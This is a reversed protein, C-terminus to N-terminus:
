GPPELIMRKNQYDFYVVYKELVRGGISGARGKEDLATASDGFLTVDANPLEIGMLFVGALRGNVRQAVGGVGAVGAPRVVNGVRNRVAHADIFPKSLTVGLNSGADVLFSGRLSDGDILKIDLDVYPVRGDLKVPITVGKGAYRFTKPNYLRLEHRGYDIAVVHQRIFDYGLIGDLVHWARKATPHLDIAATIADEITTGALRITGKQVVYGTAVNAGTGGVGFTKDEFRLGIRKGLSYDIASFSAGSDLLYDVERNGVCVKVFILDTYRYIPIVIPSVVPAPKTDCTPLRGTQATLSLAAGLLACCALRLSTLRM